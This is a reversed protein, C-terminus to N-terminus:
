CQWHKPSNHNYFLAKGYLLFKVGHQSQCKVICPINVDANLLIAYAQMFKHAM